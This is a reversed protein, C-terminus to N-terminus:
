NEYEVNGDFFFLEPSKDSGGIPYSGHETVVTAGARGSDFEAKLESYILRAFNDVEKANSRKLFIYFSDVGRRSRHTIDRKSIKSLIKSVRKPDVEKTNVLVIADDSSVNFKPQCSCLLLLLTFAFTLRTKM